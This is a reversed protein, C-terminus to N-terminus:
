VKQQRTSATAEAICRAFYNLPGPWLLVANTPSPRPAGWSGIIKGNRVTGSAHLFEYVEEHDRNPVAFRRMHELAHNGRPRLVKMRMLFPTWGNESFGWVDLIECFLREIKSDPKIDILIADANPYESGTRVTALM